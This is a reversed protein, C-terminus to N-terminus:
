SFFSVSTEIDWLNSYYGMANVGQIGQVGMEPGVIIWDPQGAGTRYPFLRVAKELGKQDVGCINLLLRSRPLPHLYIAGVGDGSYTHMKVNDNIVISHHEARIRFDIVSDRIVQRLYTNEEEMGLSIVNGSLSSDDVEYDFRIDVEAGFYLFINHAINSALRELHFNEATNETGIVITLAGPTDMIAALPGLQREHREHVGWVRSPTLEPSAKGPGVDENTWLGTIDDRVLSWCYTPGCHIYQGDVHMVDVGFPDTM